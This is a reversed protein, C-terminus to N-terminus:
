AGIRNGAPVLTARDEPEDFPGLPATPKAAVPWRAKRYSRFLWVGAPAIATLVFMWALRDFRGPFEDDGRLMLLRFERSWMGAFALLVGIITVFVFQQEGPGGRDNVNLFGFVWAAVAVIGLGQGLRLRPFGEFLSTIAFILWPVALVAAVIALTILM